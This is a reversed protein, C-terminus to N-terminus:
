WRVSRKVRGAESMELCIAGVGIGEGRERHERGASAAARGSEGNMAPKIGFVRRSLM